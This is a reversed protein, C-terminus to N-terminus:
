ANPEGRLNENVFNAAQELTSKGARVLLAETAVALDKRLEVIEQKISETQLAIKPVQNGSELERIVARKSYEHVSLGAREAAEELRLLNDGELRFSVIKEEKRAM